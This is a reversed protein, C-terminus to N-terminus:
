MIRRLTEKLCKYKNWMALTYLPAQAGKHM